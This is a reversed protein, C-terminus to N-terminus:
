RYLLQRCVSLSYFRGGRRRLTVAFAAGPDGALTESTVRLLDGHGRVPRQFDPQLSVTTMVQGHDVSPPDRCRPVTTPLLISVISRHAVM